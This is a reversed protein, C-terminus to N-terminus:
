PYTSLDFFDLYLFLFLFLILQLSNPRFIPSPKYGVPPVRYSSSPNLTAFIGSAM